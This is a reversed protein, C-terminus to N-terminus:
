STSSRTRTTPGRAAAPGRRLRLAHLDRGERAGHGRGAPPQPRLVAGLEGAGGHQGERGRGLGRGARPAFNNDDDGFLSSKDYRLGLNLTLGGRCRGRTRCTAATTRTASTSTWRGTSRPCPSSSAPRPSPSAWAPSLAGRQDAIADPSLFAASYEVDNVVDDFGDVGRTTSTGDRRSRTTARPRQPSWTFSQALQFRKSTATRSATSPRARRSSAAPAPPHPDARLPGRPRPQTGRRGKQYSVSSELFTSAPARGGHPARHGLERHGRIAPPPAPCRSPASSPRASRAALRGRRQPQGPRPLRQRPGLNFDLKLM